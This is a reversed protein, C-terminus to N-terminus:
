IAFDDSPIEWGFRECVIELFKAGDDGIISPDCDPHYIRVRGRLKGEERFIYGVCHCDKKNCWKRYNDLIATPVYGIIKKSQHSGIAMAKKDVPNDSDSFVIGGFIGCDNITCHHALGSIYIENIRKDFNDIIGTEIPNDAGPVWDINGGTHKLPRSKNISVNVWIIYGLVFVVFAIIFVKLM